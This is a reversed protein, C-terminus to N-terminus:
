DLKFRKSDSIFKQVSQFILKNHHNNLTTVGYLLNNLSPICFTSLTTIMDRRAQIYQPCELLFHNTTEVRGCACLPDGIINKSHLHQNLSSCNTRLRTHHIQLLRNGSSYYVPVKINNNNLQQKFSLLSTSNRINLPIENWERICSPLFSKYYLQTRTLLPRINQSDRLNYASTNEVTSPVLSTLYTPTLDNIMKYFQCMKHKYRRDRLSEWGTEKSLMDLSVLRTAGTVIRAAETQIKEIANAEYQTCNDWVINAYELTPRVFSIYIKNLSDRDLMFKLKRMVYIKQWAKSTILNIHEHWTGDNSLIVGLHKHHQVENIYVTNMILPPHRNRNNKRSVLLSESKSPNFKVLWKEAWRHIIELDTNIMEAASIPNDVIIYLSTDDAFLRVCSQIDTVIDNIYLLFLLPGLISGQPVGARIFQWDSRGGPIVVRQKRNTLYDSLWDLLLGNIGARKLKYILGKHWVRDFAKSIDCFVARVELGNDLAKCFTNYIDVLQNVTSDGPVFGSQLCTIISHDNFYNFMHKHIIKEMVKGISSLLSIPRYNCVLPPDDKKYLPSVNAQKWVDPFIGHSLSYNFLDCLPKSIPYAIEKLIRNNINDPGSSKGLKLTQLVSRVEEETIIINHLTNNAPLDTNPLTATSDDLSTQSVFFDNLLKAKDSSDSIYSGNHCIPPISTNVSPKIFSKLTKWYDSTALSASKLKDALSKFYEKKSKRLSSTVNNRIDKFSEYNEVTKNRKYKKYLRNRKRMLKRITGNIWPLDQPRIRVQKHPICDQALNILKDTFNLAYQNVDERKISDWNFDAVFQRFM